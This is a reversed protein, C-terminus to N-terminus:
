PRVVFTFYWLMILLLFTGFLALVGWQLIRTSDWPKPAKATQPQNETFKVEENEQVPTDPFPEKTQSDEIKPSDSPTANEIFYNQWQLVTEGIKIVDNSQIQIKQNQIFAQNLFTGNTSGIDEMWFNGVEDKSLILHHASVTKDQIIIDNEPSRGIRIIKM